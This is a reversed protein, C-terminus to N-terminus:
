SAVFQRLDGGPVPTKQSVSILNPDEIEGFIVRHIERENDDVVVSCNGTEVNLRRIRSVKFPLLETREMNDKRITAADPRTLIIPERDDPFQVIAECSSEGLPNVFDHLHRRGSDAIRNFKGRELMDLLRHTILNSDRHQERVLDILERTIEGKDDNPKTWWRIVASAVEKVIAGVIGASILNSYDVARLILEQDVSRGQVAARSYVEFTKYKRPMRGLESYHALMKYFRAAGLLSEAFAEAELMGDDAIGGQYYIRFSESRDGSYYAM